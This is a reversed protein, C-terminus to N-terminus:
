PAMRRLVHVGDWGQGVWGVGAWVNGDADVDAGDAFGSKGKWEM